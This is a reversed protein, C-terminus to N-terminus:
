RLELRIEGDYVCAAVEQVWEKDDCEHLLLILTRAVASIKQKEEITMRMGGSVAPVKEGM